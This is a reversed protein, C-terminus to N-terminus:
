TIKKKYPDSKGTENCPDSNKQQQFSFMKSLKKYKDLYKSITYIGSISRGWGPITTTSKDNMQLPKASSVRHLRNEM